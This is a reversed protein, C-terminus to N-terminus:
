VFPDFMKFVKYIFLTNKPYISSLHVIETLSDHTNVM